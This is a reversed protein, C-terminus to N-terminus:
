SIRLVAESKVFHHRYCIVLVTMKHILEALSFVLILPV